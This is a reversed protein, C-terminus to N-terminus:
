HLSELDRLESIWDPLESLTVRLRDSQLVPQTSDQGGGMDVLLHRINSPSLTEKCRLFTEWEMGLGPVDPVREVPTYDLHLIKLNPLTKIRDPVVRIGSGSLSLRELASLAFIEDPIETLSTDGLDLSTSRGARVEEIAQRIEEPLESM